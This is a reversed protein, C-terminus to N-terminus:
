PLLRQLYFWSSENIAQELPGSLVTSARVILDFVRGTQSAYEMRWAALLKVDVIDGVVNFELSGSVNHGWRTLFGNAGPTNGTSCGYSVGYHFQGYGEFPCGCLGLPDVVNLPNGDAYAYPVTMPWLPDQSLFQGTGPDYWRARMSVLGTQSDTYQGAFGFPTTVTGSQATVQGYPSYSTTGVVAGSSDTIVRTSGLADQALYDVPGSSRIQEIPVGGPGYIYSNTGDSLILPTGQAEDWTFSQTGTATTRSALLGSGDYAYGTQTTVSTSVNQVTETQVPTSENTTTGNGLQGYANDGWAWVTGNSAAALSHAYGGTVQAPSSLTEVQVPTTCSKVCAGGDGLQGDTDNGWAWVTGNDQWRRTM